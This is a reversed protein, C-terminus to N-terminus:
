PSVPAAKAACLTQLELPLVRLLQPPPPCQLALPRQDQPHQIRLQWAHLFMRPLIAQQGGQALAKNLAFDGYKDDGLIPHGQSSLHVRIQHTRGTKITVALLSVPLAYGTHEALDFQGLVQVLSIARQADPHNHPVVEVRREEAQSGTAIQFKRLSLDLVKRKAPWHGRVLALYTKGASRDKLQAQLALLSSRKKAILLLGSTERDLRHVLELYPCDTRQLRMSEIVGLSVGSGGHVAWGAPKNIALFGPEEYEIVLRESLKQAQHQLAQSADTKQGLRVPPIRLLDGAALKTDPKARGKNIRVQGSRILRYLHSKPLGKLERLLFNDLRQGANDASVRLTRVQAPSDAATM